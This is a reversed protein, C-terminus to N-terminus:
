MQSHRNCVYRLLALNTETGIQMDHRFFEPIMLPVYPLRESSQPCGTAAEIVSERSIKLGDGVNVTWEM